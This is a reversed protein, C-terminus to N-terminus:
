GVGYRELYERLALLQDASLSARGANPQSLAEIIDTLTVIRVSRLGHEQELEQVASLTGQGREQRDLAHVVAVPEAGGDRIISISERVATGASIVDDVILVRGTLPSGVINGGEGHDKAEKRNFAYPLNRGHREYLAIATTAVLPIGKYAAGFIMDFAVGSQVIAAAYCQGLVTCAAGDSFQGANFFYPSDRGSKLKFRGFRLAQRSLALDIFTLQYDQM